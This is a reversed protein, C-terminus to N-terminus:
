KKKKLFFFVVQIALHFLFYYYDRSLFNSQFNANFVYVHKLNYYIKYLTFLSKLYFLVPILPLFFLLNYAILEFAVQFLM